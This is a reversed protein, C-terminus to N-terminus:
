EVVISEQDAPAEVIVRTVVFTGSGDDDLEVNQRGPRLDMTAPFEEEGRRVIRTDADEVVEDEPLGLLARAAAESQERDFDADEDVDETPPPQPEDAGDDGGCATLVLCAALPAIVLRTRM